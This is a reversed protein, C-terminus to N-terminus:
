AALKLNYDQFKNKSIDHQVLINNINGDRNKLICEILLNDLDSTETIGTPIIKGGLEFNMLKYFGPRHLAMVIDATQMAADSGFIDSAIPLAKGLEKRVGSIEINRNMQSIFINICEYRNKLRMGANMLGTILQEETGENAKSILRTHDVINIITHNPYAECIKRKRAEWQAVNPYTNSFYIPKQNLSTFVQQLLQQRERNLNQAYEYLITRVTIDLRASTQRLIIRWDPMELSDFLIIVKNRWLPNISWDVFEEMMAIIRATKGMGSRAAIVMQDSPFLGGIIKREGQLSTQFPLLKNDAIDQIKQGTKKTAVSIHNYGEISNM